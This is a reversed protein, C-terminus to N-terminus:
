REERCGVPRLTITEIDKFNTLYNEQSCIHDEELLCSM